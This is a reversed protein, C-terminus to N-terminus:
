FFDELSYKEELDWKMINTIARLPSMFSKELMTNYDVYQHLDFQKPLKDPFAIVDEKLPNPLQLYCFKIKDGEKIFEFETDLKANTLSQNFLLAGRVHIPTGKNYLETTGSYKSLGNVGRPFSIQEVPLTKFEAKVKGVFSKLESESGNLIIKVSEKLVNRIYSPTSSKVIELGTVKVKPEAYFIGENAFVNLAYRKKAVVIGSSCIKELKYSITHKYVNIMNGLESCSKDIFPQIKDQIIKYLIRVIEDDSKANLKENNKVIDGLYLAVSDTDMFIAYDKNSKLIGNIYENLSKETWRNALQGALTIAEAIKTDYFRFHVCGCAGYISNAVLKTATQLANYKAINNVIETERATGKDVTQLQKEYELMESKYIKRKNFLDEVIDPIFGRIDTRFFQGNPTLCVNNKKLLETDVEKNLLSNVTVNKSIIYRLDNSYQEPRVLTEPSINLGNIVSPYLSTADVTSIWKYYGVLPDKVYGGEFDTKINDNVNPIQINRKKLANFCLADGMRTQHFPDEFNCKTYYALTLVLYFLKCKDDILDVLNVDQINYEYFKQRDEVYLKHLSGEYEVKRQHLENEAIHDLKYSEQSKGEPHYKKYLELYDLSSIGMISYTKEEDYRKFRSNFSKTISETINRWPSLRKTETEGLIKNCRQILYPIDFTNTNWGSYIDPYDLSWVDIFKKLLTYEDECKFYYVNDPCKFDDYGFLYIKDEGKFKLAISTIPQFPNATTAFGGTEPNSDVEIDFIAIRINDIDWVVEDPHLESIVCYEYKTNGYIKFNDVDKYQNLFEKSKKISDFQKRKLNEGYLTKYKSCETTPIYLSPKYPIKLQVKRGNRVGRFLVNDGWVRVNTYFHM